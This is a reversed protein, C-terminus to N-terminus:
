KGFLNRYNEKLKNEFDTNNPDTLGTSGAKFEESTITGDSQGDLTNIYAAAEKYDVVGDRNLDLKNFEVSAANLFAQQVDETADEPINNAMFGTYSNLDIYQGNGGFSKSINAVYSQALDTVRAKYYNNLQAKEVVTKNEKANLAHWNEDNIISFNTEEKIADELVRGETISVDDAVPQAKPYNSREMQEAIRQAELKGHEYAADYAGPPMGYGPLGQGYIPHHIDIPPPTPFSYGGMPMCCGMEGCGWISPGMGLGWGGHMAEKSVTYGVGMQLINQGIKQLNNSLNNLDVM